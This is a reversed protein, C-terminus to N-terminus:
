ASLVKEIRTIMSENLGSQVCKEYYSPRSHGYKIKSVIDLSVRGSAGLSKLFRECDTITKIDELRKYIHRRSKKTDLRAEKTINMATALNINGAFWEGELRYSKFCNHLQSEISFAHQESKCHIVLREKLAIPNATQLQKIRKEVNNAKGIKYPGLNGAQIIYVYSM